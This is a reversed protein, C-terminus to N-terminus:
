PLGRATTAPRRNGALRELMKELPRERRWRRGSTCRPPPPPARNRERCSSTRSTTARRAGDGGRWADCGCCGRYLGGCCMRGGSLM